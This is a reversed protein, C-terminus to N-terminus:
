ARSHILAWGRWQAAACSSRITVAMDRRDDNTVTDDNTTTEADAMASPREDCADAWIIPRRASLAPAKRSDRSHASHWLLLGRARARVSAFPLSTEGTAVHDAVVMAFANLSGYQRACIDISISRSGARRSLM